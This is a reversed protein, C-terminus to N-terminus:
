RGPRDACDALSVDITDLGFIAASGDAPQPLNLMVEVPTTDAEASLTFTV